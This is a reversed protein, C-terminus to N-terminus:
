FLHIADLVSAGYDRDGVLEVSQRRWPRRGTGWVIFETAPSRAWPESTCGAQVQVDGADSLTLTWDGGGAGSLRLGMPESLVRALAPSMQPLGAMLWGIAAGVRLEDAPPSPRAIPGNPALIDNRLHCFHDFALADAVLHLPYTGADEIPILTDVTPPGQFGELISIARDSIQAYDAVVQEPTWARHAETQLWQTAELDGPVGPPLSGPDAVARCTNALHTVVDQVRWGVCDSPAAWEEALLGAGLTLVEDREARLAALGDASM